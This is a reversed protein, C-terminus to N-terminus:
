ETKKVTQAPFHQSPYADPTPIPLLLLLLILAIFIFPLATVLIDLTFYNGGIIDTRAQKYAHSYVKYISGFFSLQVPVAEPEQIQFGTKAFEVIEELSRKGKFTYVQGKRLLKITPFGKIDFREGLDRNAPVDVAAVNIEGKLLEAVKEYTPKLTKCHGCWPAYFEVLWDGTTAGTSAQTLHEFNQSNLDIVDSSLTLVILCLFILIFSGNM